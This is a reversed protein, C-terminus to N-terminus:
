HKETKAIDSFDLSKKYKHMLNACFFRLVSRDSHPRTRRKEENRNLLSRIFDDM